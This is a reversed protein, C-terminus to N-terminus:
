FGRKKLDKSLADSEKSTAPYDSLKWITNIKPKGDVFVWIYKSFSGYEAQFELFKCANNVTSAWRSRILRVAVVMVLVVFGNGPTSQIRGTRKCLSPIVRLRSM